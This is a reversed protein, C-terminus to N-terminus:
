LEVSCNCEESINALTRGLVTRKDDTALRILFRMKFKPSILQNRYFRVLRTALMVKPHTQGTFSELLYRHSRRDLNFVNRMSVNWSKYLKECSDSYLDWLQSGYFSTTYTNLLKVMVETSAFHFEQLISNIKGIYRGRKIGIDHKMSNESDLTCGLHSVTKVWPLPVGDLMISAVNRQDKAKRSFIICKTKITRYM